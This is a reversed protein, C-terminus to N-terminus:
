EDWVFDIQCAQGTGNEVIVGIGNATGVPIRLGQDGFTWIVGAGIAAGLSTRYGLDDGLTPPTSSHTGRPTCSATASDPDHKGVPTIATSTGATTLRVLKVAVATTTTNTVGVERLKAGVAAAAYLSALPLTTSGAASLIGASYRAM